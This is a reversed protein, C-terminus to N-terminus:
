ISLESVGEQSPTYQRTFINAYKEHEKRPLYKTLFDAIKFGLPSKQQFVISHLNGSFAEYLGLLPVTSLNSLKNGDYGRPYESDLLAINM